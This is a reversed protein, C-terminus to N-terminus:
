VLAMSIIFFNILRSESLDQINSKDTQRGYPYIVNSMTGYCVSLILVELWSLM